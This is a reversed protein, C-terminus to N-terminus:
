RKEFARGGATVPAASFYARGAKRTVRISLKARSDDLHQLLRQRLDHSRGVYFVPYGGVAPAFSHLLYVGPIGRPIGMVEPQCLLLPGVWPLPLIQQLM